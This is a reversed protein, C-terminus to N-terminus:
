LIYLPIWTHPKQSSSILAVVPIKFPTSKPIQVTFTLYFIHSIGRDQYLNSSSLYQMEQKTYKNYKYIAFTHTTTTKTTNPKKKKTQKNKM